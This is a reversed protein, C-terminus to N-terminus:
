KSTEAPTQQTLKKRQEKAAKAKELETKRRNAAIIWKRQTEEPVGQMTAGQDLLDSIEKVSMAKLIRSKIGGNINAAAM